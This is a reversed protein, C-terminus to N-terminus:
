KTKTYVKIQKSIKQCFNRKMFKQFIWFIINISNKWFIEVFKRYFHFFLFSLKIFLKQLCIINIRKCFNNLFYDRKKYFMKVYIILFNIKIGKISIRQLIVKKCFNNNENKKCFMKCFNQSLIKKECMKSFKTKRFKIIKVERKIANLKQYIILFLCICITWIVLIKNFNLIKLTNLLYLTMNM